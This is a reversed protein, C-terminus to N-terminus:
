PRWGTYLDVKDYGQVYAGRVTHQWDWNSGTYWHWSYTRNQGVFNQDPSAFATYWGTNNSDRYRYYVRLPLTGSASSCAWLHTGGSRLCSYARWEDINYLTHEYKRRSANFCGSFAAISADCYNKWYGPNRRSQTSLYREPPQRQGLQHDM